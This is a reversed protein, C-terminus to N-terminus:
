VWASVQCSTVAVGWGGILDHIPFIYSMIVSAKDMRKFYCFYGRLRSGLVIEYIM